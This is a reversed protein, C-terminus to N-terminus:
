RKAFYTLQDRKITMRGSGVIELVTNRCTESCYFHKTVSGGYNSWTVKGISQEFITECVPCSRSTIPKEIPKRNIIIQTELHQIEYGSGLIKKSTPLYKKGLQQGIAALEELPSLNDPITITIKQM